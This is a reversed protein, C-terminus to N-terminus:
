GAENLDSERGAEASAERASAVMAEAGVWCGEVNELGEVSVWARWSCLVVRVTLGVYWGCHFSARTMDPWRPQTRLTATSGPFLHNAVPAPSRTILIQSRALPSSLSLKVPWMEVTRPSATLGRCGYRKEQPSSM